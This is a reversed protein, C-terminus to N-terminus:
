TKASPDGSMATPLPVPHGPVGQRTRPPHQTLHRGHHERGVRLLLLALWCPQIHARIRDEPPHFVSRLKLAGKMDRWGRFGALLRKYDAALADPSRTLTPLHATVM